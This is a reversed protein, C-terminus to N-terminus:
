IITLQCELTSSLLIVWSICRRTTKNVLKSKEEQQIPVAEHSSINELFPALFPPSVPCSGASFPLTFLSIKCLFCSPCELCSSKDIQNAIVGGVEEQEVLTQLQNAEQLLFDQFPGSQDQGGPSRREVQSGMLWAIRGQWVDSLLHRKRNAGDLGDVRSGCPSFSIWFSLHFVCVDWLCSRERGCTQMTPYFGCVNKPHRKVAFCVVTGKVGKWWAAAKFVFRILRSCGLGM